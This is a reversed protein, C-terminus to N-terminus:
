FGTVLYLIISHSPVSCHATPVGVSQYMQVCVFHEATRLGGRAGAATDPGRVRAQPAAPSCGADEARPACTDCGRTADIWGGLQGAKANLLLM